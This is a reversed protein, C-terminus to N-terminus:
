SQYPKIMDQIMTSFAGQNFMGSVSFLYMIHRNRPPLSLYKFVWYNFGLRFLKSDNTNSQLDHRTYPDFLQSAKAPDCTLFGELDHLAKCYKLVQLRFNDREPGAPIKMFRNILYDQYEPPWYFFLDQIGLQPANPSSALWQAPKQLAQRAEILTQLSTNCQLERLFSLHIDGCTPYAQVSTYTINSYSEIKADKKRKKDTTLSM